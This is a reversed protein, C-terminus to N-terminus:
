GKSAAAAAAARNAKVISVNRIDKEVTAVLFLGHNAKDILNIAGYIRASEVYHQRAVELNALQEDLNKSSRGARRFYATGWNNQCNAVNFSVGGEVRSYIAILQEFLRPVEDNDIDGHNFFELVDALTLMSSAVSESEIGHLQTNLKLAQRALATAEEGAKQMQESPIGGAEALSFISTALFYSGKALFASRQDSPIINDTMENIMFMAHRAYREADEIEKNQLCGQIMLLAANMSGPHRIHNMAWLTYCEKICELSERDRGLFHLAGSQIILANNIDAVTKLRRDKLQKLKTAALNSYRLSQMWNQQGHFERAKVFNATGVKRLHGDCEEKHHTWNATQCIPGCYFSIKCASCANTGPQDCGPNSCPKVEAM